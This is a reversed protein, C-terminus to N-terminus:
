QEASGKQWFKRRLSTLQDSFCAYLRLRDHYADGCEGGTSHRIRKYSDVVRDMLNLPVETEQQAKPAMHQKSRQQEICERKSIHFNELGKRGFLGQVFWTTLAQTDNNVGPM